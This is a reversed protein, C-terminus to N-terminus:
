FSVLPFSIDRDATEPQMEAVTFTLYSSCRRGQRTGIVLRMTMKAGM